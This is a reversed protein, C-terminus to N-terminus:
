EYCIVCYSGNNEPLSADTTENRRSPDFEIGLKFRLKQQDAKSADSWEEQM